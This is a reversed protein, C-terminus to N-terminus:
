NDTEVMGLLVLSVALVVIFIRMKMYCINLWNGEELFDPLLGALAYEKNEYYDEPYWRMRSLRREM